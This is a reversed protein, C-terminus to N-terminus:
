TDWGRNFLPLDDMLMASTVAKRFRCEAYELGFCINDKISGAMIFPEQEVYAVRGKIQHKGSKHVTEDMLSFLLSTKGSGIKGVITLHEGKKLTISIDNLM